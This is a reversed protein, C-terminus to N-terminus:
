PEREPMLKLPGTQIVRDIERVSAGYRELNSIELSISLQSNTIAMLLTAQASSLDDNNLANLAELSTALANRINGLSQNYRTAGVLQRTM